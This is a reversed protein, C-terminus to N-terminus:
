PTDREIKEALSKLPQALIDEDEGAVYNLATDAAQLPVNLIRIPASLIKGFLSM